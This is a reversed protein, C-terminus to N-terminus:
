RTQERLWAALERLAPVPGDESEVVHLLDEGEWDHSGIHACAVTLGVVPSHLTFHWLPDPLAAEAEAWAESL